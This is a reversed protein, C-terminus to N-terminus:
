EYYEPAYSKLVYRQSSLVFVTDYLSGFSRNWFIKNYIEMLDPTSAIRAAIQKSWWDICYQIPSDDPIEEALNLHKKLNRTFMAAFKSAPYNALMDKLRRCSYSTTTLYNQAVLQFQHVTMDSNPLQLGLLYTIETETIDHHLRHIRNAM